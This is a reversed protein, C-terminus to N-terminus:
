NEENQYHPAIESVQLTFRLDNQDTQTSIEGGQHGSGCREAQSSKNRLTSRRKKEHNSM